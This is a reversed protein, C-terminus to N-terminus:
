FFIYRKGSVKQAYSADRSVGLVKGEIEVSPGAKPTKGKKVSGDENTLGAAILYEVAEKAANARAAKKNPFALTKSGFTADHSPITCTCSFNSGISYETYSPGEQDVAHGRTTHYEPM